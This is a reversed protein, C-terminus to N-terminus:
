TWFNPNAFKLPNGRRSNCVGCLPRLNILSHMCRTQLSVVFDLGVAVSYFVMGQWDLSYREDVTSGPVPKPGRGPRTPVPNLKGMMQMKFLGTSAGKPDNFAKVPAGQLQKSKDGTAGKDTMGLMRFMKAVAESDGGKQPRTDDITMHSIPLLLGCDQCPFSEQLKAQSATGDIYSITREKVQYLMAFLRQRQINAYTTEAYSLEDIAM